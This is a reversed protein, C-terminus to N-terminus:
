DLERIAQQLDVPPTGSQASTVLSNILSVIKSARSGDPWGTTMGCSTASHIFYTIGDAPQNFQTSAYSLERQLQRKLIHMQRQNATFFQEDRKQQDSVFFVTDDSFRLGYPSQFSPVVTIGIEYNANFASDLRRIAPDPDSYPNYHDCPSLGIRNLAEAQTAKNYQRDQLKEFELMGVPALLALAILITASLTMILIRKYRTM